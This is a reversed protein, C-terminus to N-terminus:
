VLKLKIRRKLEANSLGQAFGDAPDTDNVWLVYAKLLRTIPEGRVNEMLDRWVDDVGMLPEPSPSAPMTFGTVDDYTEGVSAEGNMDDILEHGEPIPWSPDPEEIVNSVFGDVIRVVAKRM